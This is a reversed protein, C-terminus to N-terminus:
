RTASDVALSAAIAKAEPPTVPNGDLDRQEYPRNERQLAYIRDALHTAVACIAQNHHRGREIREDLRARQTELSELHATHGGRDSRAPAGTAPSPAHRRATSRTPAGLPTSRRASTSRGRARAM